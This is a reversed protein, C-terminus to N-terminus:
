PHLIRAIEMPESMNLQGAIERITLNKDVEAGQDRLKEIATDLDIGYRSCYQELTMKGLGTGSRLQPTTNGTSETKQRDEINQPLNKLILEHLEKPTLGSKQSIEAITEKESEVKIGSTKLLNLVTKINLGTRKCFLTLSSLEAHGYPPTGYKIEGQNKLFSSFDLIQKMPPLGAVTGFTIFATILLSAMLAPNKLGSAKSTGKIYNLILKWNLVTHIISSVLFLIGSTIHIDAWQDKSLGAFTWMAWYAVRGHPVVYLVVSTFTLVALSFFCTLSTTKRLM